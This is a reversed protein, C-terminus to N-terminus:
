AADKRAQNLFNEIEGIPKILFDKYCDALLDPRSYIYAMAEYARQLLEVAKPCDLDGECNPCLGRDAEIHFRLCIRCRGGDMSM